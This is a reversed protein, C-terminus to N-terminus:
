MAMYAQQESLNKRQGNEMEFKGNKMIHQPKNRM